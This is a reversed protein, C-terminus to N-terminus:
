ASRAVIVTLTTTGGGSFNAFTASVSEEAAGATNSPTITVPSQGSTTVANSFGNTGNGTVTAFALAEPTQQTGIFTNLTLSKDASITYGLIADSASQGLTFTRQSCTPDTTTIANAAGNTPVLAAVTGLLVFVLGARTLRQTLTM